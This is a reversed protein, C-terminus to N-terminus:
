KSGGTKFSVQVKSGAGFLPQGDLGKQARVADDLHAYTVIAYSHLGEEESTHLFTKELAGFPKFINQLKEETISGPLGYVFLAKCPEVSPKQHPRAQPRHHHDQQKNHPLAVRVTLPKECFGTLVADKLGGIADQGDSRREFKVFGCGRSKHTQPDTLIKCELIKGYTEFRKRLDDTTVTELFGGVYISIDTHPHSYDVRLTKTELPKGNLGEIAKKADEEKVFKVFGYSASQGTRKDTMLKVREIPGFPEFLKRLTDETVSLPLYNVILNTLDLTDEVPISDSSSSSM